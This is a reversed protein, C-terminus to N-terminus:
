IAFIKSFIRSYCTSFDNLDICVTIQSSSNRNFSQADSSSFSDWQWLFLAGQWVCM